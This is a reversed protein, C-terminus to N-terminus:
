VVRHLHFTVLGSSCYPKWKQGTIPGMIYSRLLISGTINGNNNVQINTTVEETPTAMPSGPQSMIVYHMVMHGSTPVRYAPKWQVDVWKCASLPVTSWPTADLLNGVAGSATVNGSTLCVVSTTSEVPGGCSGFTAKVISLDMTTPRHVFASGSNIWVDSTTGEYIGLRSSPAAGNAQSLPVLTSVLIMSAAVLANRVGHRQWVNRFLLV